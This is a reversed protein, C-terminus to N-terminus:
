EAGLDQYTRILREDLSSFSVLTPTKLRRIYEDDSFSPNLQIAYVKKIDSKGDL